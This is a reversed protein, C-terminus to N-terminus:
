VTIFDKIQVFAERTFNPIKLLDRVSMFAAQKRYDSIAKALIPSLGPIQDLESQSATNIDVPNQRFYDLAESIQTADSSESYGELIKEETDDATKDFVSEWSLSDVDTSDRKEQAQAAWGYLFIFLTFLRLM